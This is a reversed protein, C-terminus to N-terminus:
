LLFFLFCLNSVVFTSLLAAFLLFLINLQFRLAVRHGGDVMLSPPAVWNLDTCESVQLERCAAEAHSTVCM